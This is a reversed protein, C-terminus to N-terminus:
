FIKQLFNYLAIHWSPAEHYTMPFVDFDYNKGEVLRPEDKLLQRMALTHEVLMFDFTGSTNYLYNISYKANEATRMATFEEKTTACGSFAGFWSFYDLSATLASHFLTVSGRSLGAFARHDRSSIFEADTVDKAYTSYRSEAFPMLDNRLEDRFSYTLLELNDFCDKEVYWTPMVIVLPAIDGRYILNDVTRKNEPHRVMWYDAGDGTGHMLYLINYEKEESYGYPLYVYAEKTVTRSDTAYARTQYTIKELEGAEPCQSKDYRYPVGWLENKAPSAQNKVSLVSGGWVVGCVIAVCLLAGMSKLAPCPKIKYIVQLVLTALGFVGGAIIGVLAFWNGGRSPIFSCATFIYCGVAITFWVASLGTRRAIVASLCFISWVATIIIAPMPLSLIVLYLAHSIALLIFVAVGCASIIEFLSKFSKKTKMVM